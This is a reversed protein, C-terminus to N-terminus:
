KLAFDFTNDGEKVSATLKSTKASRYKKPISKLLEATGGDKLVEPSFEFSVFIDYDGVPLPEDLQYTGSEGLAGSGGAAGKTNTFNIRGKSLPAGKLTVTGTVTGTPGVDTKADGGGCGTLVTLTLGLFGCLFHRRVGGWNSQLKNRVNSEVNSVLYCLGSILHPM